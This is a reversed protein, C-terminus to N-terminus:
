RRGYAGTRLAHIAEVVAQEALGAVIGGAFREVFHRFEEAEAIGAARDDVFQSRKAIRAGNAKGEGFHLAISEIEAEAAELGGDEAPHLRMVHFCFDFGAAGEAALLRM